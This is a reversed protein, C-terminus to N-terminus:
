HSRNFTVPQGEDNFSSIMQFFRAIHLGAKVEGYSPHLTSTFPPIFSVAGTALWEELRRETNAADRTLVANSYTLVAFAPPIQEL